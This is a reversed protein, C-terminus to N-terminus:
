EKSLLSKFLKAIAITAAVGAMFGATLAVLIGDSELEEDPPTFIEAMISEKQFATGQYLSRPANIIGSHVAGRDM